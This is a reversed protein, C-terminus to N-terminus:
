LDHLHSAKLVFLLALRQYVAEASQRKGESGTKKKKKQCQTKTKLAEKEEKVCVCVCM